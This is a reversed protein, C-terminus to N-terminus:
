FVAAHIMKLTGCDSCVKGSNQLRCQSNMQDLILYL